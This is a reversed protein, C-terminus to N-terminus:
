KEIYYCNQVRENTHVPGIRNGNEDVEAWRRTTLKRSKKLGNFTQHCISFSDSHNIRAVFSSAVVGTIEKVTREDDSLWSAIQHASMAKDSSTPINDLIAQYYDRDAKDRAQYAKNLEHKAKDVVKHATKRAIIRSDTSM